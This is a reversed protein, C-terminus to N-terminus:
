KGISYIKLQVKMNVTLTKINKLLKSNGRTSKLTLFISRPNKVTKMGNKRQGSIPPKLKNQIINNLRMKDINPNNNEHETINTLKTVM